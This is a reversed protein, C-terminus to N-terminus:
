VATTLKRRFALRTGGDIPCRRVRQRLGGPRTALRLADQDSLVSSACCFLPPRPAQPDELNPSTRRRSTAIQAAYERQRHTELRRDRGTPLDAGVTLPGFPKDICSACKM